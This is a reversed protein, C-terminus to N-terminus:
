WLQHTEVRDQNTPHYLALSRDTVVHLLVTLGLEAWRRPDLDRGQRKDLSGM